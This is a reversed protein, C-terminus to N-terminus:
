LTKTKVDRILKIGNAVLRDLSNEIPRPRQRRSLFTGFENMATSVVRIDEDGDVTSVISGNYKNATGQKSTSGGFESIQKKSQKIIATKTESPMSAPRPLFTSNASSISPAPSRQSHTVSPVTQSLDDDGRGQCIIHGPIYGRGVHLLIFSAIYIILLILVSRPYGCNKIAATICHAIGLSFQVIQSITAVTKFSSLKAGGVHLTVIHFYLYTIVHFFTNISALIVSSGGPFYRLGLWVLFLMSSHHYFHLCNKQSTKHRLIIIM